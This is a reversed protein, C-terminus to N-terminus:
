SHISVGPIPHGPITLAHAEALAQMGSTIQNIMVHKHKFPITEDEEEDLREILKDLAGLAAYETVMLQDPGDNCLGLFRLLHPHRGLGLLVKAEAAATGNRVKLVAVTQSQLTFRTPM